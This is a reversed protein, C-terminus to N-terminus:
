PASSSGGVRATSEVLTRLDARASEAFIDIDPCIDADGVAMVNFQGAYSLGGVGLSETGLLNLLPFLELLRAGAFYLPAQPGPLDASVVNVRQRIILKLMAGRVLKSHFMTGLSPRDIAKRKATEAAIQQLRRAPDAIGLPLPVVMQSILNGGQQGPQGRRLSVPVYIPLIVGEIPEGRSGLLGRLGGAIVALLVDNVTAGHSHAVENVQELSSRVLALTRDQGIVRNLSTQPGPKEALLERLAPMAARARGLIAAPHTAARLASRLKAIRRQLNDLLLDRASPWPESAWPQAPTTRSSPATDLLAGLEAVGAIGDAVVHHLRVFWGIRDAPLGTLFWMEWLPRSNDLRRRRLRAVAPLLEAEDAPAHLREVRVHDSLDFAPADVWLPGGLGRRPAYLVQRFRPLLHLRGEIAQKAAEIRIRGESDLLSSGDLVGVAGVDQPWAEDPWLILRDEASLREMSRVEHDHRPIQVGRWPREVGRVPRKIPDTRGFDPWDLSRQM